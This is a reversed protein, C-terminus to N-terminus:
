AETVMWNDVATYDTFKARKDILLCGNYDVGVIRYWEGEYMVDKGYWKAKLEKIYDSYM